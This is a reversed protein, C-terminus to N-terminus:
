GRAGHRDGPGLGRGWSRPPRRGRGSLVAAVRRTLIRFAPSGRSPLPENCPWLGSPASTIRAAKVEIPTTVSAATEVAEGWPGDPSAGGRTGGPGEVVVGSASM